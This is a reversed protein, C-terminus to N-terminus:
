EREIMEEVNTMERRGQRTLYVLAAFDYVAHAVIPTLLNRDFYWWLGSFFAGTLAAWIAYLPTVFHILGFLVNTVGIAAALGLWGALSTQITGRFLLEECTGAVVAIAGIQGITIGAFLPMVLEDVVRNLRGFPGRRVQRLLYMLAIMPVTAALGWGAAAASWRVQRWAPDSMWLGAVLAAVGLSGEFLLAQWVFSRPSHSDPLM